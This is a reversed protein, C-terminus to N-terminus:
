MMVVTVEVIRLGVKEHWPGISLGHSWRKEWLNCGYSYGLLTSMSSPCMAPLKRLCSHVWTDGVSTEDIALCTDEITDHPLCVGFRENGLCGTVCSNPNVSCWHEISQWSITNILASKQEEVDVKETM